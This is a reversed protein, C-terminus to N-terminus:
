PEDGRPPKDRRRTGAYGTPAFGSTQQSSKDRRSTGAYDWTIPVVGSAQRLRFGSPGGNNSLRAIDGDTSSGASNRPTAQGLWIEIARQESKAPIIPFDPSLRPRWAGKRRTRRADYICGGAGEQQQRPSAPGRGRVSFGSGGARGTGDRGNDPGEATSRQDSDQTRGTGDRNMGITIPITM